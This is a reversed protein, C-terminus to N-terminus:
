LKTLRTSQTPQGERERERQRKKERHVITESLESEQDISSKYTQIKLVGGSENM